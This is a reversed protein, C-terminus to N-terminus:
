DQKKKSTTINKIYKFLDFLSYSKKISRLDDNLMNISFTQIKISIKFYGLCFAFIRIVAIYCFVIVISDIFPVYLTYFLLNIIGTFVNAFLFLPLQNLSLGNSGATQEVPLFMPILDCLAHCIMMQSMVAIFYPLNILPRCPQIYQIMIEYIIYLIFSFILLFIDFFTRSKKTRFISHYYGLSSSAIQISTYGIISLIGERNAAFFNKDRDANMAYNYLDFHHLLWEYTIILVISVIAFYKRKTKLLATGIQVFFLVFFFNFNKGYESIHHQYNTLYTVVERVFGILFFALSQKLNVILNTLYNMKNEKIGSAIGSCVVIAGVGIDMLSLGYFESKTHFRPFIKFDVALIAILTWLNIMSRMEVFGVSIIELEKTENFRTNFADNKPKNGKFSSKSEVNNKREITTKFIENKNYLFIFVIYIITLTIILPYVITPFFMPILIAPISILLDSISYIYFNLHLIPFFYHLLHHFYNLYINIVFMSILLLYSSGSYNSVFEIQELKYQENTINPKYFIPM